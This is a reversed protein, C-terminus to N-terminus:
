VFATAGINLGNTDNPAKRKNNHSDDTMADILNRYQTAMSNKIRTVMSELSKNLSDRIDANYSALVSSSVHDIDMSSGSVNTQGQNYTNLKQQLENNLIKQQELDFNLQQVTDNTQQLQSDAQQLKVFLQNSNETERTLKINVENFQKTKITLENSIEQLKSKQEKQKDIAEIFRNGSAKCKVCVFEFVSTSAFLNKIKTTLQQQGQFSASYQLDFFDFAESLEAVEKRTQICELFVPKFCCQCTLSIGYIANGNCGSITCDHNAM